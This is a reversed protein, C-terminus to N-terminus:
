PFPFGALSSTNLAASFFPNSKFQVQVGHFVAILAAIVQVIFKLWAPLNLV